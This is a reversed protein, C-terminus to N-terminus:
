DNDVSWINTNFTYKYLAYYFPVITMIVVLDVLLSNDTITYISDGVFDVLSVFFVFKWLDQAFYKKNYVFGAVGIMAIANVTMIFLDYIEAFINEQLFLFTKDTFSIYIYFLTLGLAIWFYIKWLIKKM